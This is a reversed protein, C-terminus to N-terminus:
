LAYIRWVSSHNIIGVGGADPDPTRQEVTLSGSSPMNFICKMANQHQRDEYSSDDELFRAKWPWNDSTIGSINLRVEGPDPDGSPANYHKGYYAFIHVGANLSQTWVTTYNSTGGTSVTNVNSGVLEAGYAEVPVSGSVSKWIQEANSWYQIADQDSNYIIEGIEGIIAETEADTYQRLLLNGKIAFKNGDPVEVENAFQGLGVIQHVSLISM